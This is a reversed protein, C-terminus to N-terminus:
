SKQQLYTHLHSDPDRCELFKENVRTEAEWAGDWNPNESEGNFSVLADYRAAFPNIAFIYGNRGNSYTDFIVKLYDEDDLDSDRAKSFAVIEDPQDDFCIFGLYINKPTVLIKVVTPFTPTGNEVRNWWPLLPLPIAKLWIKRM